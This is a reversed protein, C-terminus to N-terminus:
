DQQAAARPSSPAQLFSDWTDREFYFTESLVCLLRIPCRSSEDPNALGNISSTIVSKNKQNLNSDCLGEGKLNVIKTLMCMLPNRGKTVRNLERDNEGGHGERM